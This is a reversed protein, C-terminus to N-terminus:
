GWTSYWTWDRSLRSYNESCLCQLCTNDTVTNHTRHRILLECNALLTAHRQHKRASSWLFAQCRESPEENLHLNMCFFIQNPHLNDGIVDNYDAFLWPQNHKLRNLFVTGMVEGMWKGLQHTTQLALSLSLPPLSHPLFGSSRGMMLLHCRVYAKMVCGQGRSEVEVQMSCSHPYICHKESLMFWQLDALDPAWLSSHSAKLGTSYIGHHSHTHTHSSGPPSLSFMLICLHLVFLCCRSSHNEKPANTLKKEPKGREMTHPKPRPRRHKCGASLLITVAVFLDTQPHFHNVLPAM